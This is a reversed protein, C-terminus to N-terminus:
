SIGYSDGDDVFQIRNPYPPVEPQVEFWERVTDPDADDMDNDDQVMSEHSNHESEYQDFSM